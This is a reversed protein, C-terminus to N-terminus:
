RENKSHQIQAVTETLTSGWLVTLPSGEPWLYLYMASHASLYKSIRYNLFLACDTVWVWKLWIEPGSLFESLLPSSALPLPIALSEAHWGGDGEPQERVKQYASGCHHQAYAVHDACFIGSCADCKLPLFDAPFIDSQLDLPVRVDNRTLWAKWRRQKCCVVPGLGNEKAM